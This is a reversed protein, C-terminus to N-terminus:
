PQHQACPLVGAGVCTHLAASPLAADHITVAVRIEVSQENIPLLRVALTHEIGDVFEQAPKNAIGTFVRVDGM